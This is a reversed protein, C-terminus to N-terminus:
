NNAEVERFTAEGLLQQHRHAQMEEQVDNAQLNKAGKGRPDYFSHTTNFTLDALCLYFELRTCRLSFIGVSPLLVDREAKNSIVLGYYRDLGVLIHPIQREGQLSGAPLIPKTKISMEIEQGHASCVKLSVLHSEFKETHGGIGSMVCTETTIRPLGLRDALAEEIITKQAGTDFFFLVKEFANERHNWVNGEATMLVLKKVQKNSLALVVMKRHEPRLQATTQTQGTVDQMM